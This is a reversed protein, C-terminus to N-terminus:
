KHNIASEKKKRNKKADAFYMRPKTLLKILKRLQPSAKAKQGSVSEVKQLIKAGNRGAPAVEPHSKNNTVPPVLVAATNKHASSKGEPHSGHDSLPAFRDFLLSDRKLVPKRNASMTIPQSSLGRLTRFRIDFTATMRSGDPMRTERTEFTGFSYFENLMYNYFRLTTEFDPVKLNLLGGLLDSASAIETNLRDDQYFARGALFTPVRHAMAAIGVGSNFTVMADAADLLDSINEQNASISGPFDFSADELPHKKVVMIWDAPMQRAVEGLLTVFADYNGVKGTFFRTVSDGPRQMVVLLVKRYPPIKLFELCSKGGRREAQAELSKEGTVIELLYNRVEIRAKEQIPHDWRDARFSSGDILFGTPDFFCSDPLAGREAVYFPIGADRVENFLRLVLESSFPNHFMVQDIHRSRIYDIIGGPGFDYNKPAIVIEGLLPVIERCSTFACEKFLLTKGVSLDPLARPEKRSGPFDKLKKLFLERNHAERAAYGSEVKAKAHWAHSLFIGKAFLMDGFLRYVAKWSRYEPVTNFNWKELTWDPPTPFLNLHRILRCNFELDEYGWGEFDSDNGGRSLYWYRNYVNASTGTSIKEIRETDNILAYQQFLQGQLETDTEFFERTGQETLFLYPVMLFRKADEYMGQIKIETLLRRYFGQVPILDVDQFFIFPSKAYMAGYNRCRGVSFIRSESDLRVYGFGLDACKAQIKAAAEVASGDDIVLFSVENPRQDDNQSFNLRALADQRDDSIRLPIVCTM